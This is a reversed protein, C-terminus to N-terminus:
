RSIVAGLPHGDLDGPFPVGLMRAFTPALDVTAVPTSDSSSAIHDGLFILPVHRDHWYPSGHDIGRPRDLFGDVFQVEIGERGFEGGARGRYM